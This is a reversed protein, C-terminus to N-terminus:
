KLPEMLLSPFPRSPWKLIFNIKKIRIDKLSRKKKRTFSYKSNTFSKSIERRLHHSKIELTFRHDSHILKLMKLRKSKRKYILISELRNEGRKTKFCEELLSITLLGLLCRLQM